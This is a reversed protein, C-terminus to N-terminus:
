ETVTIEVVQDQVSTDNSKLTITFTGATVSSFYLSNLNVYELAYEMGQFTSIGYSSVWDNCTSADKTIWIQDGKELTITESASDILHEDFDTQKTLFDWSLNKTVGGEVYQISATYTTAAKLPKEPFLAIWEQETSADTKNPDTLNDFIAKTVVQGSSDSLSFSGDVFSITGVKSPHVQVSVPYGSVSCTPLPDPHEEYFTTPVTYANPPWKALDVTSKAEVTSVANPDSQVALTNGSLTVLSAWQSSAKQADTLSAEKDVDIVLGIGVEDHGWHLLGLRHYIASFLDDLLQKGSFANFSINEALYSSGYNANTARDSISAGTFATSSTQTQNHANFSDEAVIYNAHGNAASDLQTNAAYAALGAEERKNNLNMFVNNKELAVNVSKIDYPNELTLSNDPQKDGNDGNSGSDDNAAEGGGCATLTALAFALASLKFFKTGM